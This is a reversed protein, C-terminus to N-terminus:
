RAMRQAHQAEPKGAHSRRGRERACVKLAPARLRQEGATCRMGNQRELTRESGGDSQQKRKV